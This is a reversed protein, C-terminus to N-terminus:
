SNIYLVRFQCEKMNWSSFKPDAFEKKKNYYKFFLVGIVNRYFMIGGIINRYLMIGGIIEGQFLTGRIIERQFPKKVTIKDYM